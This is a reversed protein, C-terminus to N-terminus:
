IAQIQNDLDTIEEKLKDIMQKRVQPFMTNCCYKRFAKAMYQLSFFVLEYLGEESIYYDDKRSDKPWNVSNGVTPFKSLQYKHAFNETSIHAKVVDATKKEYELLEYVEKARCWEKGDITVAQSTVENFTFPVLSM